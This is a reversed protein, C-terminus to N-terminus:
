RLEREHLYERHLRANTEHHGEGAIESGGQGMSTESLRIRRQHYESQHVSAACALRREREDAVSERRVFLFTLAVSMLRQYANRGNSM